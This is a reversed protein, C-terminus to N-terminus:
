TLADIIDYCWLNGITRGDINVKGHEGLGNSM